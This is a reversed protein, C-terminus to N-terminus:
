DDHFRKVIFLHRPTTTNPSTQFGLLLSARPCHIFLGEGRAVPKFLLSARPCHIFLGEGRAVPKIMTAGLDRDVLTRM